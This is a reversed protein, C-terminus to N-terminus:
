STSVVLGRDGFCLCGWALSSDMSSETDITWIAILMLFIGFDAKFPEGDVVLFGFVWACKVLSKCVTAEWTVVMKCSVLITKATCCSFLVIMVQKSWSMSCIAAMIEWDWTEVLEQWAPPWPLSDLWDFHHSQVALAPTVGGPTACFMCFWGCWLLASGHPLKM